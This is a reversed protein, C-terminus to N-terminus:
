PLHDRVELRGHGKKVEKAYSYHAAPFGPPQNYSFLLELDEYLQGQNAKVALLDDAEAKRIQHAIKTQTGITDITVLCGKLALM